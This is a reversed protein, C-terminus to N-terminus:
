TRTSSKQSAESLLISRFDKVVRIADAKTRCKKRLSRGRLKASATWWGSLKDHSVGRHGSTNNKQLRTKNFNNGSVDTIRLNARRNDLVNGNIHDIVLGSPPKLILHHLLIQGDPTWKVPYQYAKQRSTGSLTWKIGQVKEWDEDDVKAYAVVEPVWQYV